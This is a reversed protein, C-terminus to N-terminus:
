GAGGIAFAPDLLVQYLLGHFMALGLGAADEGAADTGL